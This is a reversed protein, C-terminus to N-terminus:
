AHSNEELPMRRIVFYATVAGLAISILDFVDFTGYVFYSGTQDLIPVYDFWQPIFPQLWGAAQETQGLEFASDVCFWALCVVAAHQKSNGLLVVTLLCFAFVHAFTPLSHGVSGFLAPMHHSPNLDSLVPVQEPPRDIIYVLIGLLLITLGIPLLGKSRAPLARM